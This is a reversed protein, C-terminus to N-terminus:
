KSLKETIANTTLEDIKRIVNRWDRGSGVGPDGTVVPKAGKGYLEFHTEMSAAGAGYGVFMRAAKAGPNYNTIKVTLLYADAGPKFESRKQILHAEYGADGLVRPLDQEMWEGVQNRNKVQYDTFSKQIGRDILVYVSAGKGSESKSAKKVHSACSVALVAALVMVAALGYKNRM